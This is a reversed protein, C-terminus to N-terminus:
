PVERRLTVVVGSDTEGSIVRRVHREWAELAVRKQSMRDFHDYHLGHVDGPSHGLVALRDERVIGLRSLGTALSRRFDHPTPRNAQLSAIAKADGNGAPELGRIIRILGQSLLHRALRERTLRKTAFVFEAGPRRAMEGLILERAMSPLPVLHPKRVKTRDAPLAWVAASPDNLGHLEDVAMGVIEGPRQGLLLLVRLAAIIESAVSNVRDFAHWLTRLEDDRLVRSRGPGEKHPKKIGATPDHELLAGDTAWGFLKKLVSRLRNTVVPTRSALAFLHRAIEAKTISSAERSGWHPRAHARLLHQDQKWSIKQKMAYNTIYLDALADFTLGESRVQLRKAQPDEGCRVQERIRGAAERAEHLPVAPFLGIPIRKRKGGYWYRFSFMVRGSGDARVSVGSKVDIIEGQASKLGRLFADTLNRSPM